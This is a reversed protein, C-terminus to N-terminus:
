EVELLSQEVHRNLGPGDNSGQRNIVGDDEDTEDSEDGVGDSANEKDLLVEIELVYWSFIVIHSRCAVLFINLVIPEYFM